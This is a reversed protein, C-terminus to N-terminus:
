SRATDSNADRLIDNAGLQGNVMAIAGKGVCEKTKAVAVASSCAAAGGGWREAGEAGSGGGLDPDVPTAIVRARRIGVRWIREHALRAVRHNDHREVVAEVYLRGGVRRGEKGGVRRGGNAM